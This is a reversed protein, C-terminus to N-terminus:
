AGEQPFDDRVQTSNQPTLDLTMEQGPQLQVRLRWVPQGAIRDSLRYLGPKIAKFEFRGSEDTRRVYYYDESPTGRVGRLFIQQRSLRLQPPLDGQWVIQGRFTVDGALSDPGPEKPAATVTTDPLEGAQTLWQRAAEAEPSGRPFNALVWKFERVAEERLDLHTATIALYYHLTRNAPNKAIAERLFRAAPVWDQREFAKLAEATVDPGATPAPAQPAPSGCGLLLLIM